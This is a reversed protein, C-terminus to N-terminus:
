TEKPPLGAANALAMRTLTLRTPKDAFGDASLRVFGTMTRAGMQAPRTGVLALAQAEATKGPRYIAGDKIMGGLMNGRLLFCLGGFMKRESLGAGAAPQAAFDARMTDAHQQSYAM